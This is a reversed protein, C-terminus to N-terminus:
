KLNVVKPLVEPFLAAVGLLVRAPGEPRRRGQEWNKLTGLSIGMLRAFQSQSFKLSSRIKKVDPEEINFTRSAHKKGRIIKSGQKVSELLENFENKKM